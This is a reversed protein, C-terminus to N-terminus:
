LGVEKGESRVMSLTKARTLERNLCNRLCKDLLDTESKSYVASVTWQRSWRKQCSRDSGIEKQFVHDLFAYSDDFTKYCSTCAFTATDRPDSPACVIHSEFLLRRYDPLGSHASVSIQTSCHPCIEREDHRDNPRVKKAPFSRARTKRYDKQLQLAFLCFKVSFRPPPLFPAIRAAQFRAYQDRLAYLCARRVSKATTLIDDYPIKMPIRSLMCDLLPVNIEHQVRLLQASLTAHCISDGREFKSGFEEKGSDLLNQLNRGLSLAKALVDDQGTRGFCRWSSFSRGKRDRSLYQEYAEHANQFERDIDWLTFTAYHSKEWSSSM